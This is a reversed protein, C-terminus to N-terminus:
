KEGTTCTLPSINEGYLIVHIVERGEWGARVVERSTDMIVPQLVSINYTAQVQLGASHWAM